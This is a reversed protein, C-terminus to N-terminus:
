EDLVVSNDALVENERTEQSRFSESRNEKYYVRQVLYM